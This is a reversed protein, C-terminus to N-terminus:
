FIDILRIDIVLVANPGIKSRNGKKGWALDAPIVFEYREGLAMYQLGETLGDIAEEVSFKESSNTKYTDAIVKGDTLLIRQHVEVSDQFTPHRREDTEDIVRYMLGSDTSIVDAKQQYKTIFDESSKRNQGASGKGNKKDKKRAM